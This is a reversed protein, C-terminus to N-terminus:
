GDKERRGGGKMCGEREIEKFVKMNRDVFQFKIIRQMVRPYRQFFESLENIHSCCRTTCM